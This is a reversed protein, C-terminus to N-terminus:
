TDHIVYFRYISPTGSLLVLDKETLGKNLFKTKLQQISDAVDPMDKALSLDSVL